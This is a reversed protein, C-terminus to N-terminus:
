ECALFMAGRRRTALLSIALLSVPATVIEVASCRTSLLFLAAPIDREEQEHIM